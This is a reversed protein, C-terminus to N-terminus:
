NHNLVIDLFKAKDLSPGFDEVIKMELEAFANEAEAKSLNGVRRLDFLDFIAEAEDKTVLSGPRQKRLEELLFGRVDAPRHIVLAATLSIFLAHIRHKALYTSIADASPM